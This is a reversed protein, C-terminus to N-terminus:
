DILLVLIIDIDRGEELCPQYLEKEFPILKYAVEIYMDERVKEIFWKKKKIPLDYAGLPDQIWPRVRWEM